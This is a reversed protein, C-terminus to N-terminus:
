YGYAEKLHKIRKKLGRTILVYKSEHDAKKTGIEALEETTYPRDFVVTVPYPRPFPATAKWAQYTGHIYAPVIKSNVVQALIAAGEKFPKFGGTNTREAEPFIGMIKKNELVYRAVNLCGLINTEYNLSIVHMFKVLRKMRPTNFYYELGLFYINDKLSFPLAGILIFPDLFSAHNACLIFGEKPLNKKGYVTLQFFTKLKITLLLQILIAGIKATTTHTLVAKKRLETDQDKHLLPTWDIEKIKRVVGKHYFNEIREDLFVVLDQVTVIKSFGEESIPCKFIDQIVMLLEIRRLSDMGLDLELYDQILVHDIRFKKKLLTIVMQELPSLIPECSVDKKRQEGNVIRQYISEIEIRKIEGLRTKPLEKYYFVFKKVRESLPLQESFYELRWRLEQYLNVEGKERCYGYDPVIVARLYNGREDPLVAIEKIYPNQSYHQEIKIPSITKRSVIM